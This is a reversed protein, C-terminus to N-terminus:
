CPIFVIQQNILPNELKLKAYYEIVNFTEKMYRVKRLKKASTLYGVMEPDLEQCLLVIEELNPMAPLAVRLFTHVNLPDIEMIEVYKITPAASMQRDNSSTFETIILISLEQVSQLTIQLMSMNCNSLLLCHLSSGQSEMFQAFNPLQEDLIFGAHTFIRLKFPFQQHTDFFCSSTPNRLQLDTMKPCKMVFNRIMIMQDDDKVQYRLIKLKCATTGNLITRISSESMEREIYLCDLKPFKLSIDDFPPEFITLQVVSPAVKMLVQLHEYQKHWKKPMDLPLLEVNFYRRESKLLIEKFDQHTSKLLNYILSIKKM